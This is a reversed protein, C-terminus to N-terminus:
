SRRQSRRKPIDLPPIPEYAKLRNDGTFIEVKCGPFEAYYAALAIMTADGVSINQQVLETAWKNALKKLNECDWLSAQATFAGWPTQADAADAVIKELAHALEYRYSGNIQCILNGAEVIAALPLILDTGAEIECKLKHDVRSKDWKDVTTGCTEKGPIKLWVCLISTDIILVKTM